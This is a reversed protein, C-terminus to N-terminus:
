SGELDRTLPEGFNRQEIGPCGEKGCWEAGSGRELSKRTQVVWHFKSCCHLQGTGVQAACPHSRPVSVRRPRSGSGRGLPEAWHAAAGWERPCAVLSSLAVSVSALSRRSQLRAPQLCLRM